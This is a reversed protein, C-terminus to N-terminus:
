IIVTEYGECPEIHRKGDKVTVKVCADASVPISVCCDTGLFDESFLLKRGDTGRWGITANLIILSIYSAFGHCCSKHSTEYEWLTGTIECMYHYYSVVQELAEKAYGNESLYSVRLINGIFANSKYVDPFVVKDDRTYGFDDLLTRLLEPNDESTAFGLYFAYYQCTETTDDAVILEGAENRLAHDRFFLGDGLSMPTLHEKIRSARAGFGYSKGYLEEAALLAAHYLMNSPFNVGDVFDNARSWEVFVWGDLDELLGYENEYKELHEFLSLINGKANEVASRNGTRKFHGLIELVYWMDWNPIYHKNAFEGPYTMPLIGKPFYPLPTYKAYNDLFHAEVKNEGTFLKEAAGSFFSDCLWGARERSPCDSLIDVANQAFTSVAADLLDNYRKDEFSYEFRKCDPNEFIRMGVDLTCVSGKIIIVKIYRLTYPEISEFEYEGPAVDLRLMNAMSMRLPNIMGDERLVEDWLIIIRSDEAVNFRAKIFGSRNAGLDYLEFSKTSPLSDKKEYTLCRVTEVINDEIDEYLYGNGHLDFLFRDYYKPANEDIAVSGVCVSDAGIIEYSPYSVSRKNLIPAAIQECELKLFGDTCGAYLARRDRDMKYCEVFHRQWSYRPVVTLTDTLEFCQFDETTFLVRSGDSIEAAFFPRDNADSIIVINYGCLEVTIIEDSGSLYDGLAIEDYEAYGHACRSPGSAVFNNGVHVRYLHKGTLRLVASSPLSSAKLIFACSFYLDNEKGIPRIFKM